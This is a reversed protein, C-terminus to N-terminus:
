YGNIILDQCDDNSLNIKLNLFCSGGDSIDSIAYDFAYSKECMCNAWILIENRDNRVAILQIFYKKISFKEGLKKRICSNAIHEFKDFETQTLDHTTVAEKFLYNSSSYNFVSIRELTEQNLFKRIKIESKLVMLKLLDSSRFFEVSNNKIIGKRKGASNNLYLTDGNLSYEGKEISSPNKNNKAIKIQYINNSFLQLRTTDKDFKLISEATLIIRSQDQCSFLSIIILFYLYTKM